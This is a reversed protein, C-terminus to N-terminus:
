HQDAWQIEARFSGVKVVLFNVASGATVPQRTPLWLALVTLLVLGLVLPKLWRKSHNM